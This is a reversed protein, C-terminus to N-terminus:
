FQVCVTHTEAIFVQDSRSIFVAPSHPEGSGEMQHVASARSHTFMIYGSGKEVKHSQLYLPLKFACADVLHADANERFVNATFFNCVNKGYPIQTWIVFPIRPPPPPKTLENRSQYGTVM